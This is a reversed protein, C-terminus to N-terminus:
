NKFSENWEEETIGTMIFERDNASLHPWVHQVIEGREYRDLEEQTIPLDKTRVQGTLMSTRVIKM